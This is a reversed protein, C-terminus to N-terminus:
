RAGGQAPPRLKDTSGTSVLADHVQRLYSKIGDAAERADGADGKLDLTLGGLRLAGTDLANVYAVWQAFTFREAYKQGGLTLEVSMRGADDNWGATFGILIM